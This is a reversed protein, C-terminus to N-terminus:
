VPLNFVRLPKLQIQDEECNKKNISIFLDQYYLLVIQGTEMKNIKEIYKDNFRLVNLSAGNKAMKLLDEDEHIYIEPYDLPYIIPLICDTKNGKLENLGVSQKIFFPGSITRTLKSLIAGCGLEQGIDDALSRIYTGRSCLVRLKIIPLNINLIELEYVKVKRPQREVKKGQRALKYLRKGQHHVASYMPPLQSIDGKFKEVADEIEKIDLKEWKENESIIQGDADLTDTVVGLTIEAIYGKLDKNIYPIVKTAKGLCVPLVGTAMPDLTGTHGAKKCDMKKKIASVVQFSTMGSPKDVNVIGNIDSM